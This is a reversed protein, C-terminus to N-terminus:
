AHPLSIAFVSPPLPTLLTAFAQSPPFCLFAPLLITDLTISLPGAQYVLLVTIDKM